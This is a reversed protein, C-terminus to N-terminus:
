WIKYTLVSYVKQLLPTKHFLQYIRGGTDKRVSPQLTAGSIKDKAAVTNAAEELTQALPDIKKEAMVLQLGAPIIAEQLKNPQLEVAGTSKAEGSATVPEKLKQEIDVLKQYGVTGGVEGLRRRIRSRAEELRRQAISYSQHEQQWSQEKAQFEAAQLKAEVGKTAEVQAAKLKSEAQYKGIAQQAKEELNGLATQKQFELNKEVQAAVTNLIELNTGLSEITKQASSGQQWAQLVARDILIAVATVDVPPVLFLNCDAKLFDDIEM